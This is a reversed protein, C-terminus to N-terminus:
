YWLLGFAYYSKSGVWEDLGGLMKVEKIHRKWYLDKRKEAYGPPVDGNKEMELYTPYDKYGAAGDYPIFNGNWDYVELKYKPNDSPFIKVGLEKARRKTLPKIDYM